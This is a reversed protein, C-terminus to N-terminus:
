NYSHILLSTFQRHIIHQTHCRYLYMRIYSCLMQKENYTRVYMIVYKSNNYFKASFLCKQRKLSKRNYLLAVLVFVIIIVLLLLGGIAGSIATGSFTPKKNDGNDGLSHLSIVPYKM